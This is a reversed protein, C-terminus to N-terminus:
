RAGFIVSYSHNLHHFNYISLLQFILPPLDKLMLQTFDFLETILYKFHQHIFLWDINRTDHLFIGFKVIMTDRLNAESSLLITRGSLWVELVHQLGVCLTRADNGRHKMAVAKVVHTLQWIGYTKISVSKEHVRTRSWYISIQLLLVFSQAERGRFELM